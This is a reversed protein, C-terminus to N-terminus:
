LGRGGGRRLPGEGGPRLGRLAPRLGGGGRPLPGAAMATANVVVLPIALGLAHPCAIIVVTVARELAFSM